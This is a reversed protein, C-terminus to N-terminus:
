WTLQIGLYTFFETTGEIDRGGSLLIHFNDSMDYIAALNFALRDDADQADATEFFIEGGIALQDTVQRQVQWGLRWFNDGGPNYFWGGGGFTTWKDDDWSKQLWLPLFLQMKGAGLGREDDGTPLAISPFFAVMPCSPTEQIFRYKASFEIDGIGFSSEGHDPADFALPTAIGIQLNELPGYNLEFRPVAGSNAGHDGAYQVALNLEFHHLDVPEPDDTVYPPGAYAAPVLVFVLLALISKM